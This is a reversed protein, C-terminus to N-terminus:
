NDAKGSLYEYPNSPYLREMEEMREKESLLKWRIQNLFKLHLSIASCIFAGAIGILLIYLGASFSISSWAFLSAISAISLTALALLGAVRITFYVPPKSMNREQPISNNM